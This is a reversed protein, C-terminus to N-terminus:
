LKALRDTIEKATDELLELVGSEIHGEMRFSPTIIVVAAVPQKEHNFVPAAVASVDDDFEGRDFAFGTKRIQKYENRIKEPDTITEKTFIPLTGSLQHNVIKESSFAMIAKAGANANIAMRDGVSPTVTLQRDAKASYSLYIRNHQLVELHVTEKVKDRLMDVFPKSMSTLRGKLSQKVSRGLLAASPGLRYHRTKEDQVLFFENKLTILIRNVTANNIGLKKSIEITRMPQNDPTFALLIKLVKEYSNM